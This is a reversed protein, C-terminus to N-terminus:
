PHEPQSASARRADDRKAGSATRYFRHVIEPVESGEFTSNTPERRGANDGALYTSAELAAAVVDLTHKDECTKGAAAGGFLLLPESRELTSQQAPAVL